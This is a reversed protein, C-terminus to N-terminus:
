RFRSRGGIGPFPRGAAHPSLHGRYRDPDADESGTCRDFRVQYGVEEGLTARREYAIRRACARATLRRPQLVVISGSEALGQDLLAPPVRTTKGAGTPARLVVANFSRLAAVLQPLVEDIPLPAPM